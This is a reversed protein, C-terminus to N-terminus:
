NANRLEASKTFVLISIFGIIGGFILMTESPGIWATLLGGLIMGVAFGQLMIMFVSSVRGRMSEDVSAQMLTGITASFMGGALGMFFTGVGAVYVTPALGITLFALTVMVAAFMLLRGKNKVTGIALLSLLSTIGGTGAVALLVGYTIERNEFPVGLEERVLVPLVAPYAGIFVTISTFIMMWRVHPTTWVYHLGEKIRRVGTERQSQETPVVNTHLMWNALAALLYITGLVYFITNLGFVALYVGGLAPGLINFSTSLASNFTVAPMLKERGVVDMVTTQSAPGMFAFSFGAGLGLLMMHWMEILGSSVLFATIFALAALVIKSRYLLLRRNGRDAFVGGVLSLSVIGVAPAAGVFGVWISSGTEELVLWAQSMNRIQLGAFMLPNSILLLRYDRIALLGRIERLGELKM